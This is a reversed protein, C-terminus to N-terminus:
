FVKGVQTFFVHAPLNEYYKILHRLYAEQERGINPLEIVEHACGARRAQAAVEPGGKVYLFIRPRTIAVSHISLLKEVYQQVEKMDENYMAMVIHMAERTEKQSTAGLSHRQMHAASARTPKCTTLCCLAALMILLATARAAM